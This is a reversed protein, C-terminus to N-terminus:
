FSDQSRFVWFSPLSIRITNFTALDIAKMVDEKCQRMISKLLLFSNILIVLVVLTNSPILTKYLLYPNAVGTFLIGCFVQFWITKKSFHKM